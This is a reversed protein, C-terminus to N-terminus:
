TMSRIRAATKSRRVVGARAVPSRASSCRIMSSRVASVSRRVLVAIDPGVSRSGAPQGPVGARHDAFRDAVGDPVRVGGCQPDGDGGPDAPQDDVDGVVVDADGDTRVPLPSCFRASRATAPPPAQVMLWGASPPVRMRHVVGSGQGRAARTCGAIM